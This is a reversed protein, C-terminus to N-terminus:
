FGLSKKVRGMGLVLLSYELVSLPACRPTPPSNRVAKAWLLIFDPALQTLSNMKSFTVQGEILNSTHQISPVDPGTRQGRLPRAPGVKDGEWM